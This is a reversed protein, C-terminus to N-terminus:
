ACVRGAARVADSASRACGDAGVVKWLDPIQAFPGGGVLIAPCRTSPTTGTAAERIASITNAVMRLALGTSASLAVIDFQAEGNGDFLQEVIDAPPMNAGLCDVHWGDSELLDAVMRIGVDHLDGGVSAALIRKGNPEAMPLRSRLLSMASQTAATVYHEDAVTAEKLHWMRGVEALAPTIITEYVESVTKGSLVGDLLVDVAKAQKRELLHLLYLSARMSDVTENELESAIPGRGLAPKSRAILIGEAIFKGARAAIQAPLEARLTLDLALLSEVLDAVPMERAVFAARAWEVSQTFVVPRDVAIAEALYQLRNVMEGKWLYRGNSGYLGDFGPNREYLLAVAWEALARSVGDISEAFQTDLPLM